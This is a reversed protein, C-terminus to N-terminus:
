RGPWSRRTCGGALVSADSPLAWRGEGSAPQTATFPWLHTLCGGGAFSLGLGHCLSFCAMTGLLDQLIRGETFARKHEDERQAEARAVAASRPPPWPRAHTAVLSQPRPNTHVASGALGRRGARVARDWEGRRRGADRSPPGFGSVSPPESQGGLVQLSRPNLQPGAPSAAAPQESRCPDPALVHATPPVGLWHPPVCAQTGWSSCPSPSLQPRGPRSRRAGGIRRSCWEWSRRPPPCAPWHPPVLPADGSRRRSWWWRRCIESPQLLSSSQPV